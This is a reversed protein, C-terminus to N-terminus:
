IVHTVVLLGQHSPLFSFGVYHLLYLVMVCFYVLQCQLGKSFTGEM